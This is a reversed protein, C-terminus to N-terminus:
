LIQSIPSLHKKLWIGWLGRGWVNGQSFVRSFFHTESFALLLVLEILKSSQWNVFIFCPCWGSFLKGPIITHFRRCLLFTSESSHELVCVVPSHGCVWRWGDHADDGFIGDVVNAMFQGFAVMAINTSVLTGRLYSPSCEALYMPITTSTLGTLWFCIFM